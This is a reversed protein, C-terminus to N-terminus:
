YKNKNKLNVIAAKHQVGRGRRGFIPQEVGAGEPKHASVPEIADAWGLVCGGHIDGVSHSGEHGAGAELM